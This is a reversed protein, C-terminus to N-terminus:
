GVSFSEGCSCSKKEKPNFIKFGRRMLTEHYDLISGQLIRLSKPDMCIKAGFSEFLHDTERLSQEFSFQYTMGSCGGGAIAVRWYSANAGQESALQLIRKAAAETVVFGNPDADILPASASKTKKGIQLLSM